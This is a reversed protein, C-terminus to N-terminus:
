PTDVLIYLGGMLAHAESGIPTAVSDSRIGSNPSLAKHYSVIFDTTRSSILLLPQAFLNTLVKLSPFPCIIPVEPVIM